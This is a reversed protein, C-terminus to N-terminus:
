KFIYLYSMNYLVAAGVDLFQRKVDNHMLSDIKKKRGEPQKGYFLERRRSM